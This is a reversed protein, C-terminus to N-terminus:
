LARRIRRLGGLGLLSIGVLALTGPEPVAFVASVDGTVTQNGAVTFDDFDGDVNVRLYFPSPDTFYLTGNQDGGFAGSQDGSTLTFDDFVLDFFGGVGAVLIGTAATLNNAFAILYDDSDDGLTVPDSGTAGLTKDTDQLPDVWLTFAGSTGTFTFLDPGGAITGTSDFLAYLGYSTNLQSAVLLTGENIFFQGFDAFVTADFGGLGDFSIRESYGGNLKDALITGAANGPVSGEDVTFDEFVARASLSVLGLGVALATTVLAKSLFKEM